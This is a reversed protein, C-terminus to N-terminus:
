GIALLIKDIASTDSHVSRAECGSVDAGEPRVINKGCWGLSALMLRGGGTPMTVAKERSVACTSLDLTEYLIPIHM